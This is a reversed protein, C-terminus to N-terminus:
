RQFEWHPEHDNNWLRRVEDNRWDQFQELRFMQVHGDCFLMNWRGNHRRRALPPEFGPWFTSWNLFGLSLDPDGLLVGSIGRPWGPPDETFWSFYSDGIGLMESPNLVQSERICRLSDPLKMFVGGNPAGVDLDKM